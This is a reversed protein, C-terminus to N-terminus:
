GLYGLVTLVVLYSVAFVGIGTVVFHLRKRQLSQAWFPALIWLGVAAAMGFLGLLEGEFIGVRSPILKLTHFAALFFWEPRIGAPAPAFPDAKVGLEWPYM